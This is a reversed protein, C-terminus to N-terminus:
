IFPCHPNSFDLRRFGLHINKTNWVCMSKLCLLRDGFQSSLSLGVHFSAGLSISLFENKEMLGYIITIFSGTM